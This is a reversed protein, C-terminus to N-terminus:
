EGFWSAPNPRSCTNLATCLSSTCARQTLGQCASKRDKKALGVDFCRRLSNSVQSKGIGTEAELNRVTYAAPYSSEDGFFEGMWTAPFEGDDDWDQWDHPWARQAKYGPGLRGQKQLSVLKLLLGLDQSKIGDM